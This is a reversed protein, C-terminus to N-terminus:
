CKALGVKGGALSLLCQLTLSFVEEARFFDCGSHVTM